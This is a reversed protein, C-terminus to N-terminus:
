TPTGGTRSRCRRGPRADVEVWDTLRDLPSEPESHEDDPDFTRPSFDHTDPLSWRCSTTPCPTPTATSTTSSPSRSAGTASGASCGTACSTPSPPRASARPRSGPTRRPSARPSRTSATSTSTATPRTSTRPTASSRRRGARRTSRRSSAASPSGSTPRVSSRRSTWASRRQRVRLRAPRRVPRGHDGRHRLGDARLRRDLDPHRPRDGPQHRLQGHVRRDEDPERGPSRRGQAGRGAPPLRARGAGGRVHDPRRGDPAGPRPGHVHRRVAHRTADHVRPDARGALRLRRQRGDLPRDLQAADDEALRDVRARRPRRASPRRVRHHADDVAAHQAQVGPLQRPRQARRRHGGRQRRGDRPGPVLQGACGVRLGPPVLRDRRGARVASLRSWRRGDDLTRTGDEFEARLEAIPRACGTGGAPNTADADYWSEFIQLFIWQTWRYYAPDATSISRRRDHSLGLRRIQERYTTVNEATTIAPHQGTQVAFQEAPLGFADFGMTYLVNRGAMRQYRSYVDTGTFGLPHGVHLGTGSPYPFM